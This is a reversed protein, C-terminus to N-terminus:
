RVKGRLEEVDKWVREWAQREAPSFKERSKSERVSVFADNTQMLALWHRLRGANGTEKRWAALDAKMWDLARRRLSARDAEKLTKADGRGEAALLAARAASVRLGHTATNQLLAPQLEFVSAYFRVALLPYPRYTLCLEALALQKTVPLPPMEGRIIAALHEDAESFREATQVDRTTSAHLEHGPKMLSLALKGEDRVERFEGRKLHIHAM